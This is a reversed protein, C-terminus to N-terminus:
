APCAPGAILRQITGRVKDGAIQYAITCGPRGIKEGREAAVRKALAVAALRRPQTCVVRARADDDMVLQPVQTSKGCGTDGSVITVLHQKFTRCLVSRHAHIPLQPAASHSGSGIRSRDGVQSGGRAGRGGRGRWGGRWGRGRGFNNGQHAGGSLITVRPRKPAGQASDENAAPRKSSSSGHVADQLTRIERILKAKEEGSAKEAKAMYKKMLVLRM